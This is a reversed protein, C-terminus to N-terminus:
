EDPNDKGTLAAIVADKNDILHRALAPNSLAKADRLIAELAETRRAETRRADAAQHERLARSIALLALGEQHARDPDSDVDRHIGGVAFSDFDYLLGGGVELRVEPLDAPGIIEVDLEKAVAALFDSRSPTVTAVLHAGHLDLVDLAVRGGTGYVALLRDSFASKITTSM